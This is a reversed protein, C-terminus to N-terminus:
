KRGDWVEVLEGGVRKDNVNGDLGLVIWVIGLDSGNSLTAECEEMRFGQLFSLVNRNSGVSKCSTRASTDNM